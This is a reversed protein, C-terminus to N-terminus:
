NSSKKESPKEPNPPTPLEINIKAGPILKALVTQIDGRLLELIASQITEESQDIAINRCQYHRIRLEEGFKDEIKFTDLNSTKDTTILNTKLFENSATSVSTNCVKAATQELIDAKYHHPYKPKLLEMCRKFPEDLCDNQPEAAFADQALLLYIIAILNLIYM